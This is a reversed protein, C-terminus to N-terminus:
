STLFNWTQLSGSRKNGYGRGNCWVMGYGTPTKLGTINEKWKCRTRSRPKKGQPKIDWTKYTRTNRIEAKSSVYIAGIIM